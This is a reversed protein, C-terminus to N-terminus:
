LGEARGDGGSVCYRWRERSSHRASCYVASGQWMFKKTRLFKCAHARQMNGSSVILQLPQTVCGGSCSTADRRKMESASLQIFLNDCIGSRRCASECFSVAQPNRRASGSSVLRFHVRYSLCSLQQICASDQFLWIHKARV